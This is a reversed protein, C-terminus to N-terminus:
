FKMCATGPTRLILGNCFQDVRDLVVRLPPEQHCLIMDGESESSRFSGASFRASNAIAKHSLRAVNLLRWPPGSAPRDVANFVGVDVGLPIVMPTIGHSIAMNAMYTTCVTVHTALRMTASARDVVGSSGRQAATAFCRAARDYEKSALLLKGIELHDRPTAKALAGGLLTARTEEPLLELPYEVEGQPWSLKLRGAAYAAVKGNELWVNGPLQIRLPARDTLAKLAKAIRGERESEEKLERAIDGRAAAVRDLAAKKGAEFADRLLRDTRAEELSGRLTASLAADTVKELHQAAEDLRGTRLLERLAAVPVRLSRSGVVVVPIGQKGGTEVWERAARYATARSVAFVEAAEEVAVTLRDPFIEDPHSLPVASKPM